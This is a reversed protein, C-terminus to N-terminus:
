ANGSISSNKRRSYGQNIMIVTLAVKLLIYEVSNM